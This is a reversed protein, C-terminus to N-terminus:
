YKELRKKELKRKFKIQSLDKLSDRLISFDTNIVVVKLERASELPCTWIISVSSDSIYKSVCALPPYNLLHQATGFALYCEKHVSKM